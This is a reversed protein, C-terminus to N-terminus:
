EKNLPKKHKNLLDKINNRLEEIESSLTRYNGKLSERNDFIWMCQKSDCLCDGHNNPKNHTLKGCILCNNM